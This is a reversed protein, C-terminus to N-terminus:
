KPKGATCSPLLQPQSDRLLSINYHFAGLILVLHVFCYSRQGIEGAHLLSRTSILSHTGTTANHADWHRSHSRDSHKWRVKPSAAGIRNMSDTSIENTSQLRGTADMPFSDPQDALSQETV